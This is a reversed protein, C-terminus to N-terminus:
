ERASPEALVLRAAAVLERAAALEEEAEERSFRRTAGYDASVRDYQARALAALHRAELRGTRVFHLNFLHLAGRHSRPELGRTFLLARVAHFCAYYADSIADNFLSERLLVECARLAEQARAIEAKANEAANERTV